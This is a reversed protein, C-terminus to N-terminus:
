FQLAATFVWSGTHQNNLGRRYQMLFEMSSREAEYRNENFRVKFAIGAGAEIYSAKDPDPRQKRGAILVHPTILARNRYNFTRGQRLESYLATIGANPFFRGLDGYFITQNWSPQDLKLDYGDTLAYSIRALWDNQSQDGIKVLRELSFFMDQTKFPKYRAGVGAQLTDHAISLSNPQNSWFMRSYLQFIEGDRYGIVPPQFIFEIGGQSPIVGSNFFAPSSAAAAQTQAESKSRYSQYFNFQFRRTLERVEQRMRYLEEEQSRALSEAGAQSSTGAPNVEAAQALQMEADASIMAPSSYERLSETSNFSVTQFSAGTGAPANTADNADSVTASGLDTIADLSIEDAGTGPKASAAGRDQASGPSSADGARSTKGLSSGAKAKQAQQTNKLEELKLDISKKFWAVARDNDGNQKYSYALDQYLGTRAPDKSIAQEFLRAAEAYNGRNKYLYALQESYVPNQPDIEMATKIHAIGSLEDQHRLEYLGVDYYRTASRETEALILMYERALKPDNLRDHIHVLQTYLRKKLDPALVTPDVHALTRLAALDQKATQQAFAVQMLLSTDDGYSLAQRWAEIAATFNEKSFYLNGLEVLISKQEEPLFEVLAQRAKKFYQIALEPQGSAVYSRAVHVINKASPNFRLAALFADRAKATDKLRSYSFGMDLFLQETEGGNALAQQFSAVASEDKSNAIDDYAKQMAQAAPDPAPEALRPAPTARVSSRAGKKRVPGSSEAALERETMSRATQAGAANDREPQAGGAGVHFKTLKLMKGVNSLAQKAEPAPQIQAATEFAAQARGVQGVSAYAYGLGMHARFRMETNAAATAAVVESYQAIADQYRQEELLINAFFFHDEVIANLGMMASLVAVASANEKNLYHMTAKTRLWALDSPYLALIADVHKMAAGTRGLQREIYFITEHLKRKEQPTGALGLAESYTRVAEDHRQLGALAAGRRFLYYMDAQPERVQDLANLADAYRSGQLALDAAMNGVYKKTPADLGPLNLVQLYAALAREKIGQAEYALGLYLYANSSKPDDALLSKAEQLVSDYRKLRYLVNLYIVRSQRDRPELELYLKLEKAAESQKGAAILRYARDLHPYSRFLRIQSALWNETGAREYKPVTLSNSADVAWVDGAAAPLLSAVLLGSLVYNKQTAGITSESKGNAPCARGGVGNIGNM